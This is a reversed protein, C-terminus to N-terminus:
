WAHVYTDTSLALTSGIQQVSCSWKNAIIVATRNVIIFKIDARTNMM